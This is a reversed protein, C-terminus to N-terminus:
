QSSDANRVCWGWIGLTLFGTDDREVLSRLAVTSNGSSGKAASLTASYLASYDGASLGVKVVGFDARLEPSSATIVFLLFIGTLLPVIPALSWWSKLKKKNKDKETEAREPDKVKDGNKNTQAQSFEYSPPCSGTSARQGDLTEPEESLTGLLGGLGGLPLVKDPTGDKDRNSASRSTSSSGTGKRKSGRRREDEYEYGYDYDRSRDRSRHSDHSRSRDRHSRHSRSSDSSGQRPSGKRDRYSSHSGMTLPICRSSRDLYSCYYTEM